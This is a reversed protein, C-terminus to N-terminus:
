DGCLDNTTEKWSKLKTRQNEKITPFNVGWSAWNGQRVENGKGKRWDKAARAAKRNLFFDGSL